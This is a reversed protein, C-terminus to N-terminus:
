STRPLSRRWRHGGVAALSCCSLWPSLAFLRQLPAVLGGLPVVGRNFPDLWDIGNAGVMLASCFVVGLVFAIAPLAVMVSALLGWAAFSLGLLWWGLYNALFLGGDFNGLWWLVISDRVLSCLLAISFYTAVALYKGLIADFTSLPMTLLLEETGQERESSWAGM